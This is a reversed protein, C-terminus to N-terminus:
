LISSIGSVVSPGEGSGFLGALCSLACAAAAPVEGFAELGDETEKSEKGCRGLVTQPKLRMVRWEESDAVIKHSHDPTQPQGLFKTLLIGHTSRVLDAENSEPQHPARHAQVQQLRAMRHRDPVARRGARRLQHGCS